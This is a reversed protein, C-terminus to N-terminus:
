FVAIQKSQARILWRLVYKLYYRLGLPVIYRVSIWQRRHKSAVFSLFM